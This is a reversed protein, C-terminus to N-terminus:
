QDSATVTTVYNSGPAGSLAGDLLRGQTDTLGTPATGVVTLDYSRHTSLRTATAITVSFNSPNYVVSAIRM